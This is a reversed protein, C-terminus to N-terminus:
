IKLWKTVFYQLYISTIYIYHCIKLLDPLASNDIVVLKASCFQTFSLVSQRGLRCNERSSSAILSRIYFIIQRINLLKKIILFTFHIELKPIDLNLATFNTFLKLLNGWIWQASIRVTRQWKKRKLKTM